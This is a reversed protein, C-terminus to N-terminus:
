QKFFMGRIVRPIGTIKRGLKYSVSNRLLDYQHQMEHIIDDRNILQEQLSCMSKEKDDLFHYLRDIEKQKFNIDMQKNEIDYLFSLSVKDKGWHKEFIQLGEERYEQPLRYYWADFNDSLLRREMKTYIELYEELKHESELFREVALISEAAACRNELGQLDLPGPKSVGIGFNYNYLKDPIGQYSEAFYAICFYALMDEAMYYRKDDICSFAKKCLSADYIKNVLNFNYKEKVFCETLVDSGEVRKEYPVVFREFSDCEYQPANRANLVNMGFQLIQVNTDNIQRYAEECTNKSYFDDGDLFMIYQGAAANVGAKRTYLRGRNTDNQILQIRDDSFSLNQVIAKSEDSSCDDVCIIELEQMTQHQVSEICEKIYNEVNYIPIIVSIKAM